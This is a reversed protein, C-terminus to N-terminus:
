INQWQSGTWRKILAPVWQSGTYRKVPKLQWSGSLYVKIQSGSSAITTTTTTPAQTTTTTPATTTTTTTTTGTTKFSLDNLQVYSAHNSVTALDTNNETTGDYYFTGTYSTAMGQTFFAWVECMVVDGDLASVQSTTFTGVHSQETGTSGETSILSQNAADRITGVKTGDSPRWVYLNLTNVWFNAASSSEESAVNYYYNSGAVTQDGDLPPSCFKGMLSLQGNVTTSTSTVSAAQGTGISTNMTRWYFADDGTNDANYSSAETVPFTGSLNNLANHFYLKIAM